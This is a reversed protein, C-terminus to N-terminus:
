SFCWLIIDNSTSFFLHLLDMMWTHYFNISSFKSGKIFTMNSFFFNLLWIYYNCKLLIGKLNLFLVHNAVTMMEIWRKLSPKLWYLLPLLFKFLIYVNHLFELIKLKLLLFFTMIRSSSLIKLKFHQFISQFIPLIAITIIKVKSM